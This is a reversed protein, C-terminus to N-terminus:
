KPLHKLQKVTSVNMQGRQAEFAHKMKIVLELLSDCTKEDIHPHNLYLLFAPRRVGTQEYRYSPVFGLLPYPQDSKLLKFAMYDYLEFSYENYEDRASNNTLLEDFTATLGPPILQIVNPHGLATTNLVRIESGYKESISQRVYSGVTMLQAWYRQYGEVGLRQISTWASLISSASRSNEFSMHHTHVEGFQYTPKEKLLIGKNISHLQAGEKIVFFSSIYPSLGTKHFDASFSDAWEVEGMRTSLARIKQLVGAEIDLPNATFDYERFAMSAWANVSDLHLLPVYDLEFEQVLRRRIDFINKVPDVAHELTDGGLAIIAAIKKKQILAQRLTEELAAPIIAGAQDVDVRLVNERGIGLYNCCDEISYHSTKGAIVVYEAQLGKTIAKRDCINLGCKIAYMLTAKGGSTSLGEAKSLDWGALHSLFAIVDKEFLTVNGSSYDWFANPNYLTAITAAAVSDLLPNPTINVLATPQNWRISGQFATALETLIDPSSKGKLPINRAITNYNYRGALPVRPVDEHTTRTVCDHVFDIKSLLDEFNSESPLLFEGKFNDFYRRM